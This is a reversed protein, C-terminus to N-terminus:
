GSTLYCIDAKALPFNPRPATPAAARTTVSAPHPLLEDEALGAAPAADLAACPWVTLPDALASFVIDVEM